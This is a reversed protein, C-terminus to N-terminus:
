RNFHNQSKKKKGDEPENFAVKNESFYAFCRLCSFAYTPRLSFVVLSRVFSISIVTFSKAAGFHWVSNFSSLFNDSNICHPWFTLVVALFWNIISQTENKVCCLQINFHKLCSSLWNDHQILEHRKTEKSTFQRTGLWTLDNFIERSWLVNMIAWLLVFLLKM